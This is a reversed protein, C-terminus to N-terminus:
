DIDQETKKIPHRSPGNSWGIPEGGSKMNLSCGAITAVGGRDVSNHCVTFPCTGIGLRHGERLDGIVANRWYDTLEPM